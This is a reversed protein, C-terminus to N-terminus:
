YSLIGVILPEGTKRDQIELLDGNLNEVRCRGRKCTYGLQKVRRLFAAKDNKIDRPLNFTGLHITSNYYWGNEEDRWAEVKRIELTMTAKAM